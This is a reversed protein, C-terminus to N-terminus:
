FLEHRRQVARAEESCSVRLLDTDGAATIRQLLLMAQLNIAKQMYFPPTIMDFQAAEENTIGDQTLVLPQAAFVDGVYMSGALQVVENIMKQLAAIDAEMNRGTDQELRIIIGGLTKGYKNWIDLADGENYKTQHATLKFIGQMALLM